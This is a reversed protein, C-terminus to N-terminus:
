HAKLLLVKFLMKDTILSTMVHPGIKRPIFFTYSCLLALALATTLHISVWQTQANIPPHHFLLWFIVGDYLEKKFYAKCHPKRKWIFPTPKGKCLLALPPSLQESSDSRHSTLLQRLSRSLKAVPGSAAVPIWPSTKWSGLPADKKDSPMSCHKCLVRGQRCANRRAM